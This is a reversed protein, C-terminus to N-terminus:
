TARAKKGWIPPEGTRKYAKMENIMRVLRYLPYYLLGLGLTFGLILPYIVLLHVVYGNIGPVGLASPNLLEGFVM